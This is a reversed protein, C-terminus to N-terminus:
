QADELNFEITQTARREVPRGDVIRPRFRWRQIARLAARDFIRRPEAEIVRPDAVTGDERITFEVRVWGEIGQILAERPWQPEIRVIPIVDGDGAGAHDGARGLYMGGTLGAPLDLRPMDMRIDPQPMQEQQVQMDPPPPPEPPEEPPDPRQRERERIREDREVRLFDIRQPDDRTAPGSEDTAIMAQMLMFLLLAAVVGGVFSVLFRM